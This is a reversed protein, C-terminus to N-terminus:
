TDETAGRADHWGDRYYSYGRWVNALTAKGHRKSPQWQIQEGALAREVLQRQWQMLEIGYRRCFQDLDPEDTV